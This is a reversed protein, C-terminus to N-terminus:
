YLRESKSGRYKVMGGQEWGTKKMTEIKCEEIERIVTQVWCLLEQVDEVHVRRLQREVAADHDDHKDAETQESQEGEFEHIVDLTLATVVVLMMLFLNEHRVPTESKTEQAQCVNEFIEGDNTYKENRRQV